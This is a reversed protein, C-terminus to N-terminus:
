VHARGIQKGTVIAPERFMDWGVLGGLAIVCDGKEVKALLMREVGLFM